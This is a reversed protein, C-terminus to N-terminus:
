TIERNIPPGFKVGSRLKFTWTKGGDTPKPISTALDPVTENGDAGPMHKYGVLTRILMNSYIGFADGLYEGTPDFADTYEFSTSSERFIGGKQVKGQSKKGGGGGGGCAVTGFVFAAALAFAAVGLVRRRAM